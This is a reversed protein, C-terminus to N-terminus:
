KKKHNSMKQYEKQQEKLLNYASYFEMVSYGKVGGGFEKSLILCMNEFQKDFEVVAEDKEFNKPKYHRMIQATLDDIEKTHDAGNQIEDVQLLAKKRLLDSYNKDISSDFIEPFYQELAGDIKAIVEGMVKNFEKISAGNALAYLENIGNDSFDSWKKGDVKHTLFLFGKHRVDLENVVMYINQRLNLVELHAKKPDSKILNLIRSIHTDIDVITDGVGSAVLMYRSYSHFREVPMEGIEDYFEFRHGNLTEKRM